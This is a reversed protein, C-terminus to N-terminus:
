YHLVLLKEGKGTTISYDSSSSIISISNEDDGNM